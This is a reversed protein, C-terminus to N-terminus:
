TSEERKTLVIFSYPVLMSFETGFIRLNNSIDLPIKTVSHGPIGNQFKKRLLVCVPVANRFNKGPM